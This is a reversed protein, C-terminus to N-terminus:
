AKHGGVQGNREITTGGEQLNMGKVIANKGYKDKIKLIAKQMSLERKPSETNEFLNLQEPSSDIKTKSLINGATINIRRVLLDKDAIREFLRVAAETLLKTSATFNELNETGHAHKPIVRGYFDTVTEGKFEKGKEGKLNETDYGLTLVIQKTVVGKKVMDLSLLETMEKIILKTKEFNYPCKLVQGTTLSNIRPRYSKVDRITCPEYGWAHDILLEANVGFANYLVDENEVSCLAVDGMTFMGREALKQAYGKGIRWFDTIPRHAWLTKRYTMEDLEAIRTGMEDPPMKKAVIDMAIKSLYMNTGIGVTATIGTSNYVDTIMKVALERATMKYTKLYHTVDIFVEDVSYVHIDEPAVYKLYIDYIAASTEMYTRMQPPAVIFDLKLSPNEKLQDAFCSTGCFIRNKAKMRRASNVDKVRQNVEFLRARGPIGYSKLAPSVALCITKETRTIDAVVLNTNFPNLGRIVCEVSAYYSKLDICIYQRM